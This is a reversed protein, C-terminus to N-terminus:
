KMKLPQTINWHTHTHTHTVNEKYIGRDKSIQTAQMDQSNYVTSCHISPQLYGKLHHKRWIYTWSHAQLSM